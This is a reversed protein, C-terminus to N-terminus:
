VVSPRRLISAWRMPVPGHEPCDLTAGDAVPGAAKLRKLDAALVREGETMDRILEALERECAPCVIKTGAPYVSM